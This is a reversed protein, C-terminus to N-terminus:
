KILKVGVEAAKSCSGVRFLVRDVTSGPERFSMTSHGDEPPFAKVVENLLERTEGTMPNHADLESGLISVEAEQRSVERSSRPAGILELFGKIVQVGDKGLNAKVM